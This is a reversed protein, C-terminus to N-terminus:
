SVKLVVGTGGQADGVVYASNCDIVEVDNLGANVPTTLREWTHGGDVSKHIYSQGALPNVLMFGCFENAFELADIADTVAHGTYSKVEWTAGADWSQYLEGTNTGVELRYATFTNVSLLNDGGSPDTCPTAVWSDGGDKTRIIAGTNGVAYGNKLDSFDIANLQVGGSAALASQDTWTLGGDSSFYVNGASTCIWIATMSHPSYVGQAKIVEEANTSGITVATWTVGGNDSYAAGMPAAPNTERFVLWRTTDRDIMFCTSAVIDYGGGFPDTATAAWAAGADTTYWANAISSASGTVAASGIVGEEGADQAGGCDGACRADNCMSITLLDTTEAIDQRAVTLPRVRLIPVRGSFNLAITTQDGAERMVINTEGINTSKAYTLIRGRVYSSFMGLKACTDQMLYLNVKCAGIQDLVGQEPFVLGTVTTTPAGPTGEIEGRSELVGSSNRCMIPTIDGGPEELTDVDVCGVYQPAKGPTFQIFLSGQKATLADSM